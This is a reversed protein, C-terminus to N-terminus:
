AKEAAGLKQLGTSHFEPYQEVRGWAWTYFGCQSSVTELGIGVFCQCKGKVHLLSLFYQSTSPQFDSVYGGFVALEALIM